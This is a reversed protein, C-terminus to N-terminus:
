LGGAADAEDTITDKVEVVFLEDYKAVWVDVVTGRTIM